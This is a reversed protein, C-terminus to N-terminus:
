KNMGSLEELGPKREKVKIRKIYPPSYPTQQLM